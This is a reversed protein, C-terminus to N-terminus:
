KHDTIHTELPNRETTEGGAKAQDKPFCSISCVAHHPSLPKWSDTEMCQVSVVTTENNLYVSM